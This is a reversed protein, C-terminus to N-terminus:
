SGTVPKPETSAFKNTLAHFLPLAGGGGHVYESLAVLAAGSAVACFRETSSVAEAAVQAHVAALSESQSTIVLPGEPVPLWVTTREIVAFGDDAGRVPISVIAPRANGTVCAPAAQVYLRLALMSRDPAPPNCPETLTEAGIPHAHVAALGTDHIIMVAPADPLPLPITVNVTAALLLPVRLAV